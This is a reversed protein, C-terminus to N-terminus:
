DLSFFYVLLSKPRRSRSQLKRRLRRALRPSSCSLTPKKQLGPYYITFTSRGLRSITTSPEADFMFYADDVIVQPIIVEQPGDNVIEVRIIGPEPLTVREVAVQEVPPGALETLGGGTVVLYTLVIGLLILPVLALLWAAGSLGSSPSTAPTPTQTTETM